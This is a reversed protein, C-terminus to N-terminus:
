PRERRKLLALVQSDSLQEFRLYAESVAHLDRWPQLCVVEDAVGALDRCAQAPAAPICALVAAAGAERMVRVAAEMTAGTAIGDDCLLVTLGAVPLEPDPAFLQRRRALEAEEAAAVADLEAVTYGDRRLHDMTHHRHVTTTHGGYRAMAGFAVEPSGPVGLKRVSLAGLPRGLATAVAAAIPVGGRALGLVAVDQRGAFRHLKRALRTGADARNAFPLWPRHETTRGM